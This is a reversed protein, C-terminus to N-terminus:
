RHRRRRRCGSPRAPKRRNPARPASRPGAPCPRDPHLPRDPEPARRARAGGAPLPVARGDPSHRSRRDIQASRTASTSPLSACPRESATSSCTSPSIEIGIAPAASLRLTAIAPVSSANSAARRARRAPQDTLEGVPRLRAAGAGPRTGRGSRVRAPAGPARLTRDGPRAGRPDRTDPAAGTPRRRDHREPAQQHGTGRARAGQVGRAVTGPRSSCTTRSSSSRRCGNARPLVGAAIMRSVQERVQEYPPVGSATDVTLIVLPGGPRGPEDPAAPGEARRWASTARSWQTFAAGTAFLSLFGLLM